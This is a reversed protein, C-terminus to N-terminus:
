REDAADSTYLLCCCFRHHLEFLPMKRTLLASSSFTAFSAVLLAFGTNYPGASPVNVRSALEPPWGAPQFVLSPRMHNAVILPSATMSGSLMGSLVDGGGIAISCTKM